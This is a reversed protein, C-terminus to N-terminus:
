TVQAKPKFEGVTKINDKYVAYVTGSKGGDSSVAVHTGSNLGAARLHKVDDMSAFVMVTTRVGKVSFTKECIAVVTTDTQKATAIVNQPSVFVRQVQRAHNSGERSVMFAEYPQRDVVSICYKGHPLCQWEDGIVPIGYRTRGDSITGSITTRALIAAIKKQKEASAAARKQASDSARAAQLQMARERSAATAVENRSKILDQEAKTYAPTLGSADAIAEKIELLMEVSTGGIYREIGAINVKVRNALDM